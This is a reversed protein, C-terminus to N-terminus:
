IASDGSEGTRVRIATEVPYVFIKGDGVEGTRAATMITELVKEVQSDQVVIELKVKPLLKIYEVGRYYERYGKQLGCGLVDSATMGRVGYQNLAEIVADLKTGRIIAEVKKLIYGGENTSQISGPFVSFPAKNM